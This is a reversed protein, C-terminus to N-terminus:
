HAECSSASRKMRSRLSDCAKCYRDGRKDVGTNSPTWEHGRQCHTASLQKSVRVEIAKKLGGTFTYRTKQTVEEYTMGKEARRIITEHKLGSPRVLEAVLYITGDITVRRTTRQNRQQEIRSAWRCNEPSYGKDNDIREVSFGDPREGIDAVFQHFDDWESCISIGRGGYDNFQKALPNRCRRRMGQWVSYLPHPSKFPM